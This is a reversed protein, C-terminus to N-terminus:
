RMQGLANSDLNGAREKRGDPYTLIFTGNEITMVPLGADFAKRREEPGIEMLAARLEDDTFEPPEDIIEFM